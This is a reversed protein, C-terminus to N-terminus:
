RITDPLNLHVYGTTYEYRNLSDGTHLLYMAGDGNTDLKVCVIPKRASHIWNWTLEENSPAFCSQLLLALVILIKIKM